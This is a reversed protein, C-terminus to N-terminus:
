RQKKYTLILMVRARFRDFNNYGYAVNIIRQIHSNNNEAIANSFRRGTQNRALGNVIGVKWKKYSDAVKILLEDGSFKLKDIIREMFRTAETFTEYKDYHLLEQLVNYGDWFANNMKICRLIIEGYSLYTDFKRSHYENKNIKYQDMLFFKWNTKMFHREITDDIAVQNYTRIRIKNVATTLLKIVHFLDVVFLSNSFYKNKITSYGDYMDSIFVKVNNREKLPVDEFYDDLYPMQRNELVDIIEGTFFNSLVVCYKGDTDGEFHKEDICLYEPFPRRPVFHTYDDFIDIVKQTSVDYRKAITNFSQIEYFENIIATKVFDSIVNNRTLGELKFTHTKNCKPCKYRIRKIRLTEKIGITSGLKISIWKYNNIRLFQHNCYPCIRQKYEEDTEYVFGNDTEIVEPPKNTFNSSDLGFRIFFTNFDM